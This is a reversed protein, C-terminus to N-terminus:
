KLSNNVTEIYEQENQSSKGWDIFQMKPISEVTIQTDSGIQKIEVTINEGWSLLTATTSLEILGDEQDQSDILYEQTQAASICANFVRESPYQFTEKKM